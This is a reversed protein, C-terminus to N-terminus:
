RAQFIMKRGKYNKPLDIPNHPPLPLDMLQFIPYDGVPDNSGMEQIMLFFSSFGGPGEGIIVEMDNAKGAELRFWVGAQLPWQVGPGVNEKVTYRSELKEIGRSDPYCADLVNNGNVRVFLIDDGYGIFRYQGDKPSVFKGKYHIVWRRGTVFSDVGFMRPAETSKLQPIAIQFANMKQSAAYYKALIQPDWGGNM